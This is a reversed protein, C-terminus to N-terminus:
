VLFALEITRHPLTAPSSSVAAGFQNPIVIFYKDPDMVRGPGTMTAAVSAPTGSFWTPCLIVNDKAANLEGLTWYGLRADPLM